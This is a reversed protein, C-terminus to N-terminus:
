LEHTNFSNCNPCELGAFHFNIKTDSACDVCHINVRKFYELPMPVMAVELRKQMDEFEDKMVTKRCLPCRAGRKIFPNYCELHMSHGCPLIKYYDPADLIPGVLCIPCNEKLTNKISHHHLEDVRCIDCFNCHSMVGDPDYICRKCMGCHYYDNSLHLKCIDCYNDALEVKCRICDLSLRQVKNCFNCKMWKIDIAKIEHDSSENHCQHCAFYKKCCSTFIRCNRDYHQCM